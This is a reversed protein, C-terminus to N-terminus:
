HCRKKTQLWNFCIGNSILNRIMRALLIPDSNVIVHCPVVKIRIGKEKACIQFEKRANNLLVNISFSKFVPTVVGADYKSIDLLENFMDRMVEISSELNNILKKAHPTQPTGQLEGIFLSQAHIPQRLDHSASALFRSKAKNAQEAQYCKEQSFKNLSENEFRLRLSNTLMENMSSNFYAIVILYTITASSVIYHVFDNEFAMLITIPVVMPVIFFYFAPKYAATAIMAASSSIYIFFLILLQHELSNPIFFMIGAAGWLCGMGFAHIIYLMDWSVKKSSSGVYKKYFNHLFLTYVGQIIFAFFFWKLVLEHSVKDWFLLAILIVGVNTGLFIAPLQKYMQHIQEAHVKKSHSFDLSNNKNLFINNLYNM